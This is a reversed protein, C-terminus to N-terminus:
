CQRGHKNSRTDNAEIEAVHAFLDEDFEFSTNKTTTGENILKDFENPEENGRIVKATNPEAEPCTRLDLLTVEGMYSEKNIKAITTPSPSRGQTDYEDKSVKKYTNTIGKKRLRFEDADIAPNDQDGEEGATEASNQNDDLVIFTCVPKATININVTQTNCTKESQSTVNQIEYHQNSDPDQTRRYATIQETSLIIDVGKPSHRKRWESKIIKWAKDLTTANELTEPPLIQSKIMKQIEPFTTILKQRHSPFKFQRELTLRGSRLFNYFVLMATPKETGAEYFEGRPRYNEGWTIKFTYDYEQAITRIQTAKTRENPPASPIRPDILHIATYKTTAQNDASQLNKETTDATKELTQKKNLASLNVVTATTKRKLSNHKTKLSVITKESKSRNDLIHDEKRQHDSSKVCPKEPNGTMKNTKEIDDLKIAENIKLQALEQNINM